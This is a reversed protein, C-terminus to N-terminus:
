DYMGRVFWGQRISDFYVRYVGRQASSTNSHFFIELDWEDDHWSDEYWWDGATRWPGSAAVVRGSVGRFQVRAPRGECLEVNAPVSPRFVRFAAAARRSEKIENNSSSAPKARAKKSRKCSAEPMKQPSHFRRMQFVGPRHTDMLEPSGVNSGGVLDTLRAITLELKEPDPTAPLFFGGQAVRPRAAEARLIIKLIPAKPPNVQLQLRLLKLLTKLDRMPVPLTLTKEYTKSPPKKRSNHAQLFDKEFSPELDFKTYIASAALSRAELRACLQGLLRALLFALPELEEVADELEMEEEFSDDPVALVLSRSNACRALEQLRVGEQGLRESLDVVPLAALAACTCVGWRDLTELIENPPSLATIPLRGLCKSEEGAPIVSIGSFGRAALLAAEANSAIAVHVDLGLNTAQQVLRHAIAEDSSSLSTLGALDLLITDPATDEVNPSISWGLDLLAAHAAKEHTSSRQRIEVNQFDVVQSKTMGLEIGVQLASSNAVVIHCLPPNGEMLAVARGRLEQEARIVAQLPFEPVHISAIAM